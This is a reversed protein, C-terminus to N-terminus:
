LRPPDTERQPHRHRSLADIFAKIAKGKDSPLATVVGALASPEGVSLIGARELFQRGSGLALITKGHRFQNQVFEMVHGDAALADAGGDPLVLADFLVPPTNETTAAAELSGKASTITGLRSCVYLAVAGQAVLAEQVASLSAEDVSPAILLAVKRTRIGGNGPLATLSLAVSERVEPLRPENLARPMASPLAIGLGDAVRQALEPSVNILSSVMRERITPVTLKSLEFRFGGVIHDKEWQTQSNYFLTAQTYHDAFKEPKGRVKDEHVPQPFSVFGQRGAQFPCGGGLSNPEYAVRGRNVTQRHMGDRQNNQVPNLPANVPIEHFNPGGLRSIQTDTYSHIRGALLPDNSFDIGPIVHAACFAVQETEAFFNDPNRNLVM